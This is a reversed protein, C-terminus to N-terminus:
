NVPAPVDEDPMEAPMQDPAPLALMSRRTRKPPQEGNAEGAAAKGKRVKEPKPPPRDEMGQGFGEAWRAAESSEPPYPCDALGTSGDKGARYGEITAAATSAFSGLPHGGAGPKKKPKELVQAFSWQGDDEAVILDTWQLVRHLRATEAVRQEPEVMALDYGDRIDDKEGGKSEWQRLVNGTKSAWRMQQFRCEMYEGLTKDFERKGPGNYGDPM